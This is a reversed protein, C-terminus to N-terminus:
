RVGIVSFAGRRRHITRYFRRRGVRQHELEEMGGLYPTGGEFLREALNTEGRGAERNEVLQCGGALRKWQALQGDPQAANPGIHSLQDIPQFRVTEDASEGVRRSPSRSKSM